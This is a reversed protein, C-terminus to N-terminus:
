ADGVTKVSKFLEEMFKSQIEQLEQMDSRKLEEMYDWLMANEDQLETIMASAVSLEKELKKIKKLLKEREENDM